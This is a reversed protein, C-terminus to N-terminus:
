NRSSDASSSAVSSPPGGPWQADFAQGTVGRSAPGLLALYPGTLAEPSPLSELDEAPYAQRRMTTRARGPNLTNVRVHSTAELEGALVQSLAELGFKSVAYAGWYARAVRGVSSSTFVVSADASARLAPLLVQTLAFAATLNVHLVRCWTPVDYQEIPTLTGLVGASHLLGDLRGYRSGLADALADYDRALARELDLVAISPEPAGAAVLQAHVTELRGENRGILVVQAQHHACAVAVARGLGASAGTIAIVRGALEAAGCRHRRPDFGSM